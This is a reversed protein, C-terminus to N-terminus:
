QRKFAHLNGGSDLYYGVIVGTNSIGTVYTGQGLGSGANPDSFETFNGYQDRLFGYTVNNSGYYCGAVQGADNISAGIVGQFEGTGEGPVDFNTFTGDAGRIFGHYGYNADVYIGAIQGSANIAGAYTGEVADPDDFPTINGFQDRVFSHTPHLTPSPYYIGVIVGADNIEGGFTEEAGSVDFITLQGFLDAVFGQSLGSSGVYGGTVQNLNNIGAFQTHTDTSKPPDLYEVKGIADRAYEHSNSGGKVSYWGTTSGFNNVWYATAYHGFPISYFTYNGAPNIVFAEYGGGSGCRGCNGAITGNASVAYAAAQSSGPPDLTTFTQSAGLDATSILSLLVSAAFVFRHRM